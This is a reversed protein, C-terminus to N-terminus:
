SIRLESGIINFRPTSYNTSVFRRKKPYHEDLRRKMEDYDM